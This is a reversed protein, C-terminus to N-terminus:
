LDMIIAVAKDDAGLLTLGSTIIDDRNKGSSLPSWTKIIQTNDDPLVIDQGQYNWTCNTKCREPVLPAVWARLLM